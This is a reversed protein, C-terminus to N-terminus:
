KVVHFSCKKLVFTFSFPVYLRMVPESGFDLIRVYSQNLGTSVQVDDSPGASPPTSDWGM